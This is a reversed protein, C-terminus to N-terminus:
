APMVLTQPSQAAVYATSLVEDARDLLDAATEVAELLPGELQEALLILGDRTEGIKFTARDVARLHPPSM